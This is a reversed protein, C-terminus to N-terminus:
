YWSPHYGEQKRRQEVELRERMKKYHQSFQCLSFTWVFSALLPLQKQQSELLEEDWVQHRRQKPKKRPQSLGVKQLLSAWKMADEEEKRLTREREEDGKEREGRKM